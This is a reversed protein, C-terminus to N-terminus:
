RSLAQRRIGHTPAARMLAIDTLSRFAASRTLIRARPKTSRWNQTCGFSQCRTCVYRALIRLARSRHGKPRYHRCSQWYRTQPSTFHVVIPFNVIGLSVIRGVAFTAGDMADIFDVRILTVAASFRNAIVSQLFLTTFSDANGNFCHAAGIPFIVSVSILASREFFTFVGDIIVARLWGVRPQASLLLSIPSANILRIFSSALLGDSNVRTNSRIFYPRSLKHSEHPLRVQHFPFM